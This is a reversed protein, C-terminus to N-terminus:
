RGMPPTLAADVKDLWTEAADLHDTVFGGKPGEAGKAEQILDRVMAMAETVDATARRASIETLISHLDDTRFSVALDASPPGIKRLMQAITADPVPTNTTM